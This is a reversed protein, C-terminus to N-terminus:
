NDDDREREADMRSDGEDEASWGSPQEDSQPLRGHFRSTTPIDFWQM